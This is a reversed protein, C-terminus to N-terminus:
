RDSIAALRHGVTDVLRNLEPKENYVGFQRIVEPHSQQGIQIEQSESVINFERKGTVPNTACAAVTLLLMSAFIAKRMHDAPAFVNGRPLGCGPYSGYM